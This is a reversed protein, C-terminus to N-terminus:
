VSQPLGGFHEEGEINRWVKEVVEEGFLKAQAHHSFLEKENNVIVQLAFQLAKYFQKMEADDVFYFCDQLRNLAASYDKLALLRWLLFITSKDVWNLFARKEAM